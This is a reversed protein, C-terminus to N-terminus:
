VVLTWWLLHDHMSGVAVLFIHGPMRKSIRATKRHNHPAYRTTQLRTRRHNRPSPARHHLSTTSPDHRYIQVAKLKQSIQLATLRVARFRVTILLRADHLTDLTSDNAISYNVHNRSKQRSIKTALNKDCVPTCIKYKANSPAHLNQSRPKARPHPPKHLISAVMLFHTWIM